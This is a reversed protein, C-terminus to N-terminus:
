QAKLNILIDNVENEKEELEKECYVILEMAEGFLAISKDLSLQKEEVLSIIEEIRKLNEELSKDKM